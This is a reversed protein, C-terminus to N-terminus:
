DIIGLGAEEGGMGETVMPMVMGMIGLMMVMGIMSTWDAGGGGAGVVDIVNDIETMVEPKEAIKVYIDYDQGDSIGGLGSVINIDVYGSVTTFADPSDPCELPNTASLVEDFGFMGRTGISGYLSFTHAPGKYPVNISIRLIDGPSVTVKGQAAILWGVTPRYVALGSIM